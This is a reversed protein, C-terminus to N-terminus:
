NDNTKEEVPIEKTKKKALIEKEFASIQPNIEGATYYLTAPSVLTYSSTQAM